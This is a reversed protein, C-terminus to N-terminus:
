KRFAKITSTVMIPSSVIPKCSTPKYRYVPSPNRGLTDLLSIIEPCTEICDGDEGMSTINLDKLIQEIEDCFVAEEGDKCENTLDLSIIDSLHKVKPSLKLIM